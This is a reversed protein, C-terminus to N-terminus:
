FFNGIQVDLIKGSATKNANQLVGMITYKDVEVLYFTYFEISNKM